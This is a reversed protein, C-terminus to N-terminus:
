LAYVESKSDDKFLVDFLIIEVDNSEIEGIKEVFGESVNSEISVEHSGLAQAFDEHINSVSGDNNSSGSSPYDCSSATDSEEKIKLEALLAEIQVDVNVADKLNNCRDSSDDVNVIISQSTSTKRSKGM